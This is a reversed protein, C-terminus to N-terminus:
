YIFLTASGAVPVDFSVRINSNSIAKIAKPKLLEYNTNYTQVVFNPLRYDHTFEWDFSKHPFEFSLAQVNTFLRGTFDPLLTVTPTTTGTTGTGTSTGSTGTGTGTGTTGGTSGTSTGTGTTGTSTTGGTTSTSTGSGTETTTGEETVIVITEDIFTTTSSSTAVIADQKIYFKGSVMDVTLQVPKKQYSEYHINHYSIDIYASTPSIVTGVKQIFGYVPPRPSILGYLGLYLPSSPEVNWQRYYSNLYMTPKYYCMEGVEVDRDVIGVVSSKAPDSYSALQITGDYKISVLSNAFIRESATGYQLHQNMSVTTTLSKSSEFQSTDTLFKYSGDSTVAQTPTNLDDFLIFGADCPEKIDVQTSLPYVTTYGNLYTCAFVRIFPTWNKGSWVRMCTSNLDFWHQGINPADPEAHSTIPEYRTRGFTRSGTLKDIDWFLWYKINRSLPGWANSVTQTEKYLYNADFYAFNILVGDADAIVSVYKDNPDADIFVPLANNDVTYKVIGNRFPLRM